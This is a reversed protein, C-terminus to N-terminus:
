SSWRWGAMSRCSWRGSCIRTSRLTAPGPVRRRRTRRRCGQQQQQQHQQMQQLRAPARAATAPARRPPRQRRAALLAPSPPPATATRHRSCALVSCALWRLAAACLCHRLLALTLTEGVVGDLSGSHVTVRPGVKDYAEGLSDDLTSGITIYEGVGIALVLM